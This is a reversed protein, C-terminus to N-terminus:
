HGGGGYEIAHGVGKTSVLSDFRITEKQFSGIYLIVYVGHQSCVIYSM